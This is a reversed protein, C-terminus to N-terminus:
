IKPKHARGNLGEGLTEPANKDKIEEKRKKSSKLILCLFESDYGKLLLVQESSSLAWWHCKLVDGASLRVKAYLSKIAETKDFLM